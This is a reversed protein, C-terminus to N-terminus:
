PAGGENGSFAGAPIYWDGRTFILEAPYEKGMALRELQPDHVLLSKGDDAWQRIWRYKGKKDAMKIPANFQEEYDAIRKFMEPAVERVAAWQPEEGYVCAICSLRGWGLYYAPHPVIKHRCIIEWVKEESWDIVAHWQDVRRSLNTTKNKEVEPYSARGSSEERREGTIYLYKGESFSPDNCIVARGVDIKLLPSCWRRSLDKGPMPFRLRTTIEGRVGGVTIIEETQDAEFAVPATRQNCKLLEGEFGGERWSFRIKLGLAEAFAMCFPGSVPWDMFDRGRGDVLHHMLVIKNKPVGLELMHLVCAMSDKGGSFAIIVRDYQNLPLLTSTNPKVVVDSFKKRKGKGSFDCSDPM